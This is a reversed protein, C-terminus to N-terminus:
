NLFSTEDISSTIEGVLNTNFESIDKGTGIMWALKMYATEPLMDEAFICGLSVSLKRLNTYVYPNTRGYLTQTAIVVIVGSSIAKELAPLINSAGATPVHGLATGALVIGKYKKSVYFDIIEPKIGPHIHVYAVDPSLTSEIKCGKSSSKPVSSIESIELSPYRITALPQANIPRFADRRSTHMKRVKVGSIVNCYDDNSTAHMCVVIGRGKWRAAVTIACSLNMFADSSGRDISRQAATIVIPKPANQIMFSLASSIYHLCDTGMTLVIGAISTDDIYSQLATAIQSITELDVDESMFQMLTRAKINAISIVEPCMAIFDGATYSVAKVGGSEYDISSSITGGTSIVAVTPLAQNVVIEPAPKTTFTSVTLIKSRVITDNRIGINYGSDLKIVTIDSTLLDPRPLLMGEYTMDKTVIQVVDGPKMM